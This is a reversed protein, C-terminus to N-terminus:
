CPGSARARTSWVACVAHQQLQGLLWVPHYQIMQEAKWVQSNGRVPKQSNQPQKALDNGRSGSGDALVLQWMMQSDSSGVDMQWGPLLMAFPIGEM